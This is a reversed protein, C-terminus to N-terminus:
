REDNEISENDKNRKDFINEKTKVLTRYAERIDSDGISFKDWLSKIKDKVSSAVTEIIEKTTLIKTKEIDGYLYKNLKDKEVSVLCKEVENKEAETKYQEHYFDKDSKLLYLPNKGAVIADRDWTLDMNYWVGDLKIQNWAHGKCKYKKGEVEFSEDNKKAEPYGDVYRAEIGLCSFVNRVIEAYGSCVCKGEILGGYMNRSIVDREEKKEKIAAYDYSMHNALRNIVQGFIKKERDSDNEDGMEIGSILEDIMTRCFRYEEVSYSQKQQRGINKDNFFIKFNVKQSLEDLEETTLESANKIELYFEEDQCKFSKNIKVLKDIQEKTVVPNFLILEKICDPYEGFEIAEEANEFNIEAYIDADLKDGFEKVQEPELVLSFNEDTCIQKIKELYEETIEQEEDIFIKRKIGDNLNKFNIYEDLKLYDNVTMTQEEGLCEKVAEYLRYEPSIRDMYNQFHNSLNLNEYIEIFEKRLEGEIQFVFTEFKEVRYKIIDKISNKGIDSTFVSVEKLNQNANNLFSLNDMQCHNLTLGTLNSQQELFKSFTEQNIIAGDVTVKEIEKSAMQDFNLNQFKHNSYISLEKIGELEMLVKNLDDELDKNQSAGFYSMAFRGESINFNKLADKATETKISNIDILNIVKKMQKIYIKELKM